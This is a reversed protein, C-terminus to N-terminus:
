MYISRYGDLEFFDFDDLHLLIYEWDNGNEEINEQELMRAHQIAKNFDEISHKNNLLIVRLIDDEQTGYGNFNEVDRVLILNYNDLNVTRKM